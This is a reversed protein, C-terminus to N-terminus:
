NERAQTQSHKLLQKDGPAAVATVESTREGAGAADCGACATTAPPELPHRRDGPVAAHM